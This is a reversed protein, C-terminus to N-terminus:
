VSTLQQWYVKRYSKIRLSNRGVIKDHYYQFIVVQRIGGCTLM